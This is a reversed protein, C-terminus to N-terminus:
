KISGSKKILDIYFGAALGDEIVFSSKDGVLLLVLDKKYKLAEKICSEGHSMSGGGILM